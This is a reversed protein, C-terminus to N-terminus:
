MDVLGECFLFFFFLIINKGNAVYSFEKVLDPIHCNNDMRQIHRLKQNQWKIVCKGNQIKERLKTTKNINSHVMEITIASTFKILSTNCNM